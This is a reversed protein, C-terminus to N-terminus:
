YNKYNMMKYLAAKFSVKGIFAVALFNGIDFKQATQMTIEAILIKKCLVIRFFYRALAM